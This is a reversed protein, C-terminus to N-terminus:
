QQQISFFRNKLVEEISLAKSPDFTSMLDILHIASTKLEFKFKDSDPLITRRIQKGRNDHDLRMDRGTLITYLLEGFMRVVGLDKSKAVTSSSALSKSSFSDKEEWGPFISSKGFGVLKIKSYQTDYMIDKANIDGHIIGKKGLSLVANIVEFLIVRAETVDLRVKSKLYSFLNVWKAGFPETVLIYQTELVFYNFVPQVYPNEAGLRSLYAQVLLERPLLLNLPRSAKCKALLKDRSSALITRIHCISSETSELAYEDTKSRQFVRYEVKSNGPKETALYVVGQHRQSLKKQNRYTKKFYKEEGTVFDDYEKTIRVKLYPTIEPEGVSVPIPMKYSQSLDQLTPLSQPQPCLKSKFKTWLSSMCGNDPKPDAPASASNKDPTKGGLSAKFFQISRPRLQLGSDQGAAGADNTVGQAYITEATLLFILLGHLSIM